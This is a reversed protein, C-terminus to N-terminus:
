RGAPPDALDDDSLGVADLADQRRRYDEVHVVKGDRITVVAYFRGVTFYRDVAFRRGAADEVRSPEEFGAARFSVFVCDGAPRCEELEIGYSELFRRSLVQLVEDRSECDWPGHEAAAWTVEPDLLGFLREFDGAIFAQYGAHIIEVNEQSM